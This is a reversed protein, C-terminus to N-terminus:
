LQSPAQYRAELADIASALRAAVLTQQLRDLDALLQQMRIHLDEYEAATLRHQESAAQAASKKMADM